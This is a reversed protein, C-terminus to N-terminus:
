EPFVFDRHTHDTILKLLLAMKKSLIEDKTCLNKIVAREHDNMIFAILEARDEEDGTLSYLNVFGRKPNVPSYFDTKSKEYDLYVSAGGNGYCFGEENLLMWDSWDFTMNRWISYETCHHLEHHMVHVLYRESSIGFAGNMSLFLQKRFPDPVAARPQNNFRLNHGLIITEAGVKQLYSPPYKLFERKLLELYRLTHKETIGNNDFCVANWSDRVAEHDLQITINLTHSVDEVMCVLRDSPQAAAQRVPM